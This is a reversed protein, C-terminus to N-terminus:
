NEVSEFFYAQENRNARRMSIVRLVNGRVVHVVVVVQEGLLGLTRWREEGYDFRQDVLTVTHWRFVAACQRFDLRHKRINDCRKQEDWEFIVVVGATYNCKTTVCARQNITPSPLPNTLAPNADNEYLFACIRRTQRV